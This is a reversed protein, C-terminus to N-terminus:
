PYLQGCDDQSGRQIFYNIAAVPSQTPNPYEFYRINGWRHDFTTKMKSGNDVIIIEVDKNDLNRQYPAQLSFITRPLERAMNFSIVVISIQPNAM